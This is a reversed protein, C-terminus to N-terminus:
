FCAELNPSHRHPLSPPTACYALTVGIRSSSVAVIVIRAGCRFVVGGWWRISCPSNQFLAAPHRRNMWVMERDALNSKGNSNAKEM